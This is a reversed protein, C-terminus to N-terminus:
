CSDNIYYQIIEYIIKFFYLPKEVIVIIKYEFNM